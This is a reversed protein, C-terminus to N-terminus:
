LVLTLCLIFTVINVMAFGQFAANLNKETTCCSFDLVEIAANLGLGNENSMDRYQVIFQALNHNLDTARPLRFNM